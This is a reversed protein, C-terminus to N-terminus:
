SARQRALAARFDDTTIDAVHQRAPRQPPGGRTRSDSGTLGTDAAEARNLEKTLRAIEADKARVQAAYGDGLARERALFHDATELYDELAAANFGAQPFKKAAETQHAARQFRRREGEDAWVARVQEVHLGHDQALQPAATHYLAITSQDVTTQQAQLALDVRQQGFQRQQVQFDQKGWEEEKVALAAQVQQPTAEGNAVMAQYERRVEDRYHQRAAARGREEAQRSANDVQGRLSQNVRELEALRAAWDDPPAAAPAPAPTAAAAPAAEAPAAEVPPAGAEPQSPPPADGRPLFRGHEDRDPARSPPADPEPDPRKTAAPAEAPPADPTPTEGAPQARLTALLDDSTIDGLTEPQNASATGSM